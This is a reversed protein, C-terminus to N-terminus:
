LPPLTSKRGRNQEVLWKQLPEFYDVMARASLDYGTKERLKQRWDFGAGGRLISNLFEGVEKHGWYNTDHPDQDLLKRAIHDHFQFALVCALADDYHSGGGDELQAESAADCWREDRPEPPAIGQHKAVLEWWRANWSEPPLDGAYLEGEFNYMTGASWPIFVAYRLAEEFLLQMADPKANSETSALESSAFCRPQAAALEMLVGVSMPFARNAGRRLVFPVGAGSCALACHANGFQRLASEYSTRNSEASMLVRVDRDLDVHWASDRDNKTQAAGLAVPFFSSREWFTPPLPDFGTSVYFREVDELIARPESKRLLGDIDHGPAVLLASWDRGWEDPLWHVPILDPVPQGYRKALEYRMYTHLETYLPRLDHNIEDLKKALAATNFGYESACYTFYNGHGLSRVTENRLWRSRVLGARLSPGVDKAASWAARRRALDTDERLIRALESSTVRQGDLTHAFGYSLEAQAADCAIREVVLDPVIAPNAGALYQITELERRMATPLEQKHKGYTRSLEINEISGTFAALAGEAACARKRDADQGAVVHTQSAWQAERWERYLRQYTTDYRALYKLVEARFSTDSGDGALARAAFVCVFGVNRAIRSLKM